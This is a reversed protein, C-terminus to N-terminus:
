YKVMASAPPKLTLIVRYLNNLLSRHHRLIRYVGSHLEVVAYGFVKLGEEFERVVIVVRAIRNGLKLAVFLLSWTSRVDHLPLCIHREWSKSCKQIPRSLDFLGLRSSSRSIQHLRRHKLMISVAAFHSTGNALM